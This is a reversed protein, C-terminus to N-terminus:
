HVTFLAASLSWSFFVFLFFLCGSGHRTLLFWEDTGDRTESRVHRQRLLLLEKWFRVQYYAAYLIAEEETQKSM